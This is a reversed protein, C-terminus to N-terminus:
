SNFVWFFISFFLIPKCLSDCHSDLIFKLNFNWLENVTSFFLCVQVQHWRISVRLNLCVSPCPQSKAVTLLTYVIVWCVGILKLINLSRYNLQNILFSNSSWIFVTLHCHNNLFILCETILNDHKVEKNCINVCDGAFIDILSQVEWKAWWHINRDFELIFMSMLKCVVNFTYINSYFERM